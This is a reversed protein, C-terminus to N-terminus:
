ERFILDFRSFFSVFLFASSVWCPSAGVFLFLFTYHSLSFVWSSDFISGFAFRLFCVLVFCSSENDTKKKTKESFASIIPHFNYFFWSVVLFAAKLNFLTTIIDFSQLPIWNCLFVIKKLIAWHLDLVLAEVEEENHNGDKAVSHSAIITGATVTATSSSSTTTTFPPSLYEANPTVWFPLVNSFSWFM